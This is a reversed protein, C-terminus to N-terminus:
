DEAGMSLGFPSMSTYESIMKFERTYKRRLVDM